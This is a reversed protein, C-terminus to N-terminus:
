QAGGPQKTKELHELLDKAETFNPAIKVAKQVEALALDPKKQDLYVRALTTRAAASDSAALSLQLEKVADDL